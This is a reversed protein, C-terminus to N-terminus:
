PNIQPDGYNISKYLGGTGTCVRPSNDFTTENFFFTAPCVSNDKIQTCSCQVDGMERAGYVYPNKLCQGGESKMYLLLGAVVLLCIIVIVFFLWDKIQIKKKREIKQDKRPNNESPKEADRQPPFQM